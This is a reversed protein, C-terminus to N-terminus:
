LVKKKLCDLASENKWGFHTTAEMADHKRIAPCHKSQMKWSCIGSSCYTSRVGIDQAGFQVAVIINM